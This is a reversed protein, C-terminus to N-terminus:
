LLIMAPPPLFKIIVKIFIASSFFANRLNM